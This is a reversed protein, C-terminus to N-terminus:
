GGGIPPLVSVVDGDRVIQDYTALKGNVSVMFVEDISIGLELVLDAVKSGENISINKIRKNRLDVFWKVKVQITM